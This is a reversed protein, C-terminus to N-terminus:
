VRGKVVLFGLGKNVVAIVVIVVKDIIIILKGEISL